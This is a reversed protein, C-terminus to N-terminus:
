FGLLISNIQGQMNGCTSCTGTDHGEWNLGGSTNNSSGQYNSDQSAVTAGEIAVNSFQHLVSVDIIGDNTLDYSEYEYVTLSDIVTDADTTEFERRLLNGEDNYVYHWRATGTPGISYLDVLLGSSNYVMETSSDNSGTTGIRNGANDVTETSQSSYNLHPSTPVTYTYIKTATNGNWSYATEGTSGNSSENLTVRIRGLNDYYYSKRSSFQYDNNYTRTLMLLRDQSDYIFFDTATGYTDRNHEAINRGREDFILIKTLDGRLQIFDLDAIMAQALETDVLGRYPNNSSESGRNQQLPGIAFNLGEGGALTLTLSYRDAGVLGNTAVSVQPLEISLTAADLIAPNLSARDSVPIADLLRLTQGDDNLRLNIEYVSGQYPLAPITLTGSSTEFVALHFDSVQGLAPKGASFFVLLVTLAYMRGLHVQFSQQLRPIIM